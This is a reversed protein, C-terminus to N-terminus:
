FLAAALMVLTAGFGVGWVISRVLFVGSAYVPVYVVRAVLYTWAAAPTM